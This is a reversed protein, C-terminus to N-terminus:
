GETRFGEPLEARLLRVLELREAESLRWVASDASGPSPGIESEELVEAEVDGTLAAVVEWSTDVAEDPVQVEAQGAALSPSAAPQASDPAVPRDRVLTLTAVVLLVLGVLAPALVRASLWPARPRVPHREERIADAVRRSFHDWFLPSPEPVELGRAEDLTRRLTEVETRCADCAALHDDAAGPTEALELLRDRSLHATM